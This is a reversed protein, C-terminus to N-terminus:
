RRGTAGARRRRVAMALAGLAFLLPGPTGSTCGCGSDPVQPPTAEPQSIPIGRLTAQGSVRREGLLLPRVVYTLQASARPGLTLGRVSLVGNSWEAAVPVGDLRASGEVYDLGELRETVEVEQVGCETTNTLAASFGVLGTDSATPIEARHLLEVFPETTIPVEHTLTQEAGSEARGKVELVVSKGVLENLGTDQTALEVERGEISEWTPKPGAKWKWKVGSLPCADAPYTQVLTTRAGLGCQAVLRTGEPLPDLEVLRTKVEVPLSVKGAEAGSPDVLTGEVYFSGGACAEPLPLSWTGPVHATQRAVEVGGDRVLRMRASLDRRETCNLDTGVQGKVESALVETEQLLLKGQSFPALQTRVSLTVHSPEGQLGADDRTRHVVTFPLEADVCDETEVGLMSTTAPLSVVNEATDLFRIGPPVGGDGELRWTTELGPFQAHSSCAHTSPTGFFRKEGADLVLLTGADGPFPEYPRGWPEVNVSFVASQSNGDSDYVVAQYTYSAGGAECLTAAPTFFVTGGDGELEPGSNPSLQEWRISEPQCGGDQKQLRLEVPGGGAVAVPAEPEVKPAPLPQTNRVVVKITRLHDHAKWGDSAVAVFSGVEGTRCVNKATFQLQATNGLDTPNLWEMSWEPTEQRLPEISVLLPDGDEDSALLPLSLTAGEDLEVSADLAFQPAHANTYVYLAGSPPSKVNATAVCTQAGHCSLHELDGVNQLLPVRTDVYWVTGAKSVDRVPQARLVFDIIRDEGSLIAMGFGTGYESGAELNLDVGTVETLSKAPRPLTVPSLSGADSDLGGRLLGNTTGILVHPVPQGGNFFEIASVKGGQPIVLPFGSATTSYGAQLSANNFTFSGADLGFLALEEGGVPTVGLAGTPPPGTRSVRQAWSGSSLVGQPSHLLVVSTPSSAVAFSGGGPVHKVSRPAVAPNPLISAAPACPTGGDPRSSVRYGADTLVSVFCGEPTLFTGASDGELSRAPGIGGDTFQTGGGDVFLHAHSATSVSFTGPGWVEV